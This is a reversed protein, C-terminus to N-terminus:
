TRMLIYDEARFADQIRGIEFEAIGLERMLAGGLQLSTEFMEAIALTAGAQELERVETYDRARAIIPIDRDIQRVAAITRLSIRIDAHTIVVARARELAIARLVLRRSADGYYAPEGKLRSQSVIDANIDLGIYPLREVELLRSLANGVRGFGSIIIHGRLDRAESTMKSALRTSKERILVRAAYQGLEVMFPTLTMSLAVAVLLIDVTAPTIIREQASIGFLVFAFESGQALLVGATLANVTSFKFLKGLFLIILAKGLVLALAISIIYPWESVLPRLDVGMGVVMFFLGLLMGKFPLIDAEVQLHFETEAVLLGAIFAGLGASLGASQCGSAIAFVIFLITATLLEDSGLRAVRTFIPRIAARGILIIILLALMGQAGAKVMNLSLVPAGTAFMDVMMLLPIVMLDQLILTSLALRGVQTVRWGREILIQFVIATSSMALAGGIILAVGFDFGLLGAVSGAVATTLIMQLTGFGFVQTRLQMLRDWSLELGITFLLFVIGFEAIAATTETPSVLGLAHPGILAGATLYGIISSVRLVRFLALGCAAAALMVLIEFFYTGSPTMSVADIPQSLVPVSVM